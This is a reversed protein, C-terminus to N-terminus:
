HESKSPAAAPAAAQASGQEFGNYACFWREDIKLRDIPEAYELQNQEWRSDPLYSRILPYGYAFYRIWKSHEPDLYMRTCTDITVHKADFKSAHYAFEDHLALVFLTYITIKRAAPSSFQQDYCSPVFTYLPQFMEEHLWGLATRLPKLEQYMDPDLAKLAKYLKRIQQARKLPVELDFRAADQNFNAIIMTRMAGFKPHQLLANIAEHAQHSLALQKSTQAM